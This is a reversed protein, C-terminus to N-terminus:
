DESTSLLSMAGGLAVLVTGLMLVFFGISVSVSWAAVGPIGAGAAQAFGAQM